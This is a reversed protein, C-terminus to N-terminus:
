ARDDGGKYEFQPLRRTALINYSVILDILLAFVAGLMIIVCGYYFLDSAPQILTILMTVILALVCFISRPMGSKERIKRIPSFCQGVAIGTGILAGGILVLQLTQTPILAMLLASSSLFQFLITMIVIGYVILGAKGKKASKALKERANKREAYFSQQQVPEATAAAAGADAQAGSGQKAQMRKHEKMALAAMAGQDDEYTEKVAIQKIERTHIFATAMALISVFITLTTPRLTLFQNLLLFLVVTLVGSAGLYKKIDVPMDAVVKGTQGNVAAYAVRDGNRYSMFWVPLLASDIQVTETNLSAELKGGSEKINYKKLIEHKDFFRETEQVAFERADDEYVSSHVDSTDAYFGSLFAPSFQKMNKVDFPALSASIADSFSSSADYSIGKYYADLAVDLRYFDTIIYDGARHSRTGTLQVPGKGGQRIYYIWYPMYIGRFSDIHKEDKLEKPAFFAKRMLNAYAQKCEEKTKQFPILYGMKQGKALRSTLITSAGCFSCFGAITNDTSYVEGYCQPCRFVTMEFSDEEADKEKSVAYPDFKADCHVCGLQQSKIDFRLNGGCNPCEYM